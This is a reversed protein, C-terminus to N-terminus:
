RITLKRTPALSLLLWLRRCYSYLLVVYCLGEFSYHRRKAPQPPRQFSCMRPRISRRIATNMNSAVRAKVTAQVLLFTLLGSALTPDLCGSLTKNSRAISAIFCLRKSTARIVKCVSMLVYGSESYMARALSATASEQYASPPEVESACASASYLSKSVKKGLM